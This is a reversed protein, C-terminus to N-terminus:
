IFQEVLLDGFGHLLEGIMAIIIAVALIHTEAKRIESELISRATVENIQTSEIDIKTSRHLLKQLRERRSFDVIAVIAGLAVVAAGSRNM